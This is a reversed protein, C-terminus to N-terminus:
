LAVPLAHGLARTMAVYFLRREDNESGEYRKQIEDTFISEPILWSQQEGTRKSPFRGNVLCPVFVVPWELGKAQHITLLDVADLDFTDEGGFDEYADLSYYQLFNFLKRYFFVGREQGGRYERTGNEDVYRARRTVHEFDALIQSFRALTGMRAAQEPDNLDLDHVCITRLLRYYDRVLNAQQDGADVVAKWAKLVGTLGPIDTGANFIEAYEAVLAKFDVAESKGFRNSKWENDCLWAYTKGLVIADPQLFLGTRGACRFPIGRTKLEEILPPGSTRVSRYLVAIDRYRYGRKALSEITDAITKAETEPQLAAWCHVEPGAATRHAQMKKKLRGEISKAFTNATAIITPRSRRNISIPLTKAGKYRKLFDVINSVDSGRWQYIAQDDDGVVCLNVPSKALLEILREQAPNVDQYEDVILYKLRGHVREFVKPTELARVAQTILMGYTLFHYRDLTERYRAYCKGFETNKVKAPDILENEMVDANKLFEFIPAWHKDGIKDLELRKHERSLLGALRNDDLIDYNGFGPVHDQLLRLCYAHITGVYMPNLRDLFAKGKAQAIRKTIRAKLGSAARDTFTFAIIASPDVGDEILAAVRRSIAETKGSGACAIIQLHGKRHDIIAQQEPSPKFAPKPDNAM